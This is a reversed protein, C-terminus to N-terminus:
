ARLGNRGGLWTHLIQHAACEEAISCGQCSFNEMDRLNTFSVHSGTVIVGYDKLKHLTRSFTEREMRLRSAILTKSYPLEFGHPNFNYLVCLRQLYCAVIQTASMSSLHEAEMEANRLRGTLDTMLFAQLHQIEKIRGRLWGMQIELLAANDVARVSLCHESQGSAIEDPNVIDGAILINSTAEHGDPTERFIQVTGRCIVYFHTIADGRMYLFKGRKYQSIRSNQILLASEDKSLGSFLPLARLIEIDVPMQLGM